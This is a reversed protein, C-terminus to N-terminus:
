CPWAGELAATGLRELVLSWKQPLKHVWWELRQEMM